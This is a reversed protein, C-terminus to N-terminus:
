LSCTPSRSEGVTLENRPDRLIYEAAPRAVYGSGLLLVRRKEGEVPRKLVPLINRGEDLLARGFEPIVFAARHVESNYYKHGNSRSTASENSAVIFRIQGSPYTPITTFSYEASAFLSRAMTRLEAIFKLHLWLCEAQTSIVGGPALANHLLQFYPQEFLAQAPGVPDSSDTIIADYTHKSISSALFAFGDGVYTRVHPSTFAASM